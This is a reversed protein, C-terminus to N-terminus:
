ASARKIAAREGAPIAAILKEVSLGSVPHRWGPAVEALPILVFAREAIRPHPLVPPGEDVRGSYDILDLDLTRPANKACRTRGFDNEIKHLLKMLAGPALKTEVRAAANVFPPDYPDPWAPTAYFSSVGIIRVGTKSLAKLAAALTEAPSGASSRLNSGLAIVIM